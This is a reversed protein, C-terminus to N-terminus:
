GSCVKRASVKPSAAEVSEMGAKPTKSGTILAQMGPTRAEEVAPTFIVRTTGTPQLKLFEPYLPDKLSQMQYAIADASIPGNPSLGLNRTYEIKGGAGTLAKIMEFALDPHKRRANVTLTIWVSRLLPKHGGAAVAPFPFIGLDFSPPLAARISRRMWQGGWFMASKGTAFIQIADQEKIGLPGKAYLGSKAMMEVFEAGAVLEPSTWPKLGLDAKRMLKDAKIGGLYTYYPFIPFNRDQGAPYAMPMVGKANLAAGVKKLEDLTNPIELGHQQFIGRNYYVIVTNTVAPVSVVAGNITLLQLANPWFGRKYEPDEAFIRTFDLVSGSAYVDVAYAGPEIAIIDPTPSQAALASKVGVRQENLGPFATIELSLNPDHRKKYEEAIFKQVDVHFGVYQWFSITTPSSAKVKPAKFEVPNKLEGTAKSPAPQAGGTQATARAARLLPTAATSLLGLRLPKRRPMERADGHDTRRKAKSMGLEGKPQGPRVNAREYGVAGVTDLRPTSVGHSRGQRGPSLGGRHAGMSHSRRPEGLRGVGRQARRRRRPSEGGPGPARRPRRRHRLAGVAASARPRAELTRTPDGRQRPAGLLAHAARGLRGQAGAAHQAGRAAVPRPGSIEGPVGGLGSRPHDSRHRHAPVAFPPHEAQDRRGALSRHAADLHRGRAGM